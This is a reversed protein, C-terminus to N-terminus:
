PCSPGVPIGTTSTYTWSVGSCNAHTATLQFTNIGVSAEMGSIEASRNYGSLTGNSLTGAKYAQHDAFYAEEAAAANRLDAKLTAEYGRTRYGAFQPIAIAALIAIIAVVVLLEVLSFGSENQEIERATVIVKGAISLGLLRYIPSTKLASEALQMRVAAVPV